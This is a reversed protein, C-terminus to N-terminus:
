QKPQRPKRIKKAAPPLQATMQEEELADLFENFKDAATKRTSSSSVPMAGPKLVPTKIHVAGAGYTNVGTSLEADMLYKNELPTLGSKDSKLKKTSMKEIEL